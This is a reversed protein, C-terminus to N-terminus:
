KQLSRDVTFSLFVPSLCLNSDCREQSVTDKIYTMKRKMLSELNVYIHGKLVWTHKSHVRHFPHRTNM